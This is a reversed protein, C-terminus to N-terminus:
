EPNAPSLAQGVRRLFGGGIATNAHNMTSNSYDASFLVGVAASRAQCRRIVCCLTWIGEAISARRHAPQPLRDRAISDALRRTVFLSPQKLSIPIGIPFSEATSMVLQCAFAGALINHM